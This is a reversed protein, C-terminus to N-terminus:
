RAPRAATRRAPPVGCLHRAGHLRPGRLTGPDHPPAAIMYRIPSTVEDARGQARKRENTREVEQNFRDVATICWAGQITAAVARSDRWLNWSQEQTM